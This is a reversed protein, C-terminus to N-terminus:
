IGAHNLQGSFLYKTKPPSIVAKISALGPNCIPGPPLGKYVYTNYPSDRRLDSMNVKGDWDGKSLWEAYIVTPDCQLKINREMRNYFVSAILPQEDRVGSEKEVLSAMTVLQHVTLRGSTQKPELYPLALQRFRELMTRIVAKEDYDLPFFYTEPFLYGELTRANKAFEPLLDPNRFLSMYTDYRGLGKNQLHHFCHSANWGEPFTIKLTAIKGQVLIETVDQITLPKSFNYAGAKVKEQMRNLKLYYLFTRSHPIIGRKELLKAVDAAKMGQLILIKQDPELYGQFPTTVLIRTWYGVQWIYYIGPFLILLCLIATVIKKGPRKSL